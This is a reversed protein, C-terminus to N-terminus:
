LKEVLFIRKVVSSKRRNEIDTKQEKEELRQIRIKRSKQSKKTKIWNSNKRKKKFLFSQFKNKNKKIKFFINEKDNKDYNNKNKEKM